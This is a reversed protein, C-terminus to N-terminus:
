FRSFIIEYWIKYKQPRTLQHETRCCHWIWCTKLFTRETLKGTDTTKKMEVPLFLSLISEQNYKARVTQNPPLVHLKSVGSATMAGWVMIKPAFKSKQIPEGKSRHKAWVGDNKRNGPVSLYMLCGDTFIISRLDEFQGNRDSRPFSFENPIQNKSIKSFCAEQM